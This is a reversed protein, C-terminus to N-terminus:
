SKDAPTVNFIMEPTLEVSKGPVLTGRPNPRKGGRYTVVFDTAKEDPPDGGFALRVLEAYSITKGPVKVRRGNVVIPTVQAVEHVKDTETVAEM